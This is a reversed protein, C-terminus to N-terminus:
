EIGNISIKAYQSLEVRKITNHILNVMLIKFDEWRAEIVPLNLLEFKCNPKNNSRKLNTNIDEVSYKTNIHELPKDDSWDSNQKRESL